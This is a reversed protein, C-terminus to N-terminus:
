LGQKKLAEIRELAFEYDYEGLRSVVKQYPYMIKFQGSYADEIDIARKYCGLADAEVGRKEAIKGLDTQLEASGPYRDAAHKMAEFAKKLIQQKNEDPQNEALLEYTRALNAFDKYNANDRSIALEFCEVAKDLWLVEKTKLNDYYGLLMKGKLSALAPDLRDTAIASDLLKSARDVNSFTARRVKVSASVSPVLAYNIYIIVTAVVGATV